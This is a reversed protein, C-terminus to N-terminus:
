TWPMFNGPRKKRKIGTFGSVRREEEKEPPSAAGRAPISLSGLM